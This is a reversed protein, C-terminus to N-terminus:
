KIAIINKVWVNIKKKENDKSLSSVEEKIVALKKGGRNLIDDIKGSIGAHKGKIVFGYNGKELKITKEIKNDKFNYIVSNGIDIKDKTILNRGDSLNIQVKGNKLLKKGIVKIVKSISDNDSTENFVFKNNKGLGVKYNKNQKPLSLIDFIMLPYNTKQIEKGNIKIQKEKIIKKLEKKTRVLKLIDRIVVILPISSKKHHISLALYKNGKRPVPWFKEINSRNQHM